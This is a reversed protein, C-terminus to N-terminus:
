IKVRKLARDIKAMTKLGPSHKGTEIRTITGPSRRRPRGVRGPGALPRAAAFSKAPSLSALLKSKL